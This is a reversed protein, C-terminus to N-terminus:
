ARHRKHTAVVRTARRGARAAAPQDGVLSAAVLSSDCGSLFFM